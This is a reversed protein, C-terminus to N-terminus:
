TTTNLQLPAINLPNQEPPQMPNFSEKLEHLNFPFRAGANSPPAPAADADAASTTSQMSIFYRDSVYKQM